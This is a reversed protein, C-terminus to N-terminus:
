TQLQLLLSYIENNNLFKKKTDVFQDRFWNSDPALLSEPFETIHMPKVGLFSKRPTLLM